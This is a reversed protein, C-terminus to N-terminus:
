LLRGPAAVVLERLILTLHLNFTLAVVSLLKLILEELVIAFLLDILSDSFLIGERM